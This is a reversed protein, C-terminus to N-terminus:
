AARQGLKRGDTKPLEPQLRNSGSLRGHPLAQPHCRTKARRHLLGGPGVSWAPSNRWRRLSADVDTPRASCAASYIGKPFGPWLLYEASRDAATTSNSIVALRREPLRDGACGTDVAHTVLYAKTGAPPARVLFEIRGSPPVSQSELSEEQPLPVGLDDALSSGDRAVVEVPLPARNQDVIALDLFADTAANLIRWLSTEDGPIDFHALAEDPADGM